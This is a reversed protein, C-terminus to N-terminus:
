LALKNVSLVATLITTVIAGVLIGMGIVTAPEILAVLRTLRSGVREEATDALHSAVSALRGSEEGVRLMQLGMPTLFGAERLCDSMRRGQRVGTVVKALAARAARNSLMETTMALASPLELGGALMTALGRATQATARERSLLGLLPSDLFARDLAERVSARRLALVAALIIGLLGVLMLDGNARLGREIALLVAASAPLDKGAQAFLPEFRPVVVTMLIIISGLATLALISPYILSSVVKEQLKQSRERLLALEGLAEGLRGASEGARVMGVYVRPFIAPAEAMAQSLSRGGRVRALLQGLAAKLRKSEVAEGMMALSAEITLGAGLLTALERTAETLPKAVGGMVSLGALGGGEAREAVPEAGIPILGGAQLRQIATRTDAAEIRGTVREGAATLARYAFTPV